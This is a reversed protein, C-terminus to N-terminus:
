NSFQDGTLTGRSYKQYAEFIETRHQQVQRAQKEANLKQNHIKDARWPEPQAGASTPPPKVIRATSNLVRRERILESELTSFDLNGKADVRCLVLIDEVVKSGMEFGLDSLAMRFDSSHIVGKGEYDRSKLVGLISEKLSLEKNNM